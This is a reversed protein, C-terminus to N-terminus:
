DDVPKVSSPHVRIKRRGLDVTLSKQNVSVIKGFMRERRGVKVEVRQDRRWGSLEDRVKQEYHTRAIELIEELAKRDASACLKQVMERARDTLM